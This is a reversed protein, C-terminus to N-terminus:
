VARALSERNGTGPRLEERSFARRITRATVRWLTRPLLPDVWIVQQVQKWKIPQTRSYNGDLVWRPQRTVAEVKAMFEAYVPEQWGSKWYLADM